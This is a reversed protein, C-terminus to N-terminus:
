KENNVALCDLWSAIKPEKEVTKLVEYKLKLPLDNGKPKAVADSTNTPGSGLDLDFEM